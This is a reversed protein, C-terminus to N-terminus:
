QSHSSPTFRQSHNVTQPRENRVEHGLAFAVDDIRRRDRAEDADGVDTRVDRGLM